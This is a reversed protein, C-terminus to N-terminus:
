KRLYNNPQTKSEEKSEEIATKPKTISKIPDKVKQPQNIPQIPEISNLM